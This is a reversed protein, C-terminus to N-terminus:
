DKLRVDIRKTKVYYCTADEYDDSDVSLEATDLVLVTDAGSLYTAMVSYRTGVPMEFETEPAALTDRLVVIGQDYDGRYMKIPVSPHANNVTCQVILYGTGPKVRQCDAPAYGKGEDDNCGALLLTPVLLGLGWSAWRLRDIRM